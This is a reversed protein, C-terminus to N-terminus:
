ANETEEKPLLHKASLTLQSLTSVLMDSILPMSTPRSNRLQCERDRKEQEATAEPTLHYSGNDHKEWIQGYLDYEPDDIMTIFDCSLTELGDSTFSPEGEDTWRNPRSETHDLHFLISENTEPDSIEYYATFDRGILTYQGDDGWNVFYKDDGDSDKNIDWRIASGHIADQEISDKIAKRIEDITTTKM